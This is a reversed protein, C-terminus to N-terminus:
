FYICHLADLSAAISKSTLESRYKAPLVGYKQFYDTDFTHIFRSPYDITNGNDATWFTRAYASGGKYWASITWERPKEHWEGNIVKYDKVQRLIDVLRKPDKVNERMTIEYEIIDEGTLKTMTYNIESPAWDAVYRQEEEPQVQYGEQVRQQCNFLGKPNAILYEFMHGRRIEGPIQFWIVVQTPNQEEM